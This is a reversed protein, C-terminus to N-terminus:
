MECYTCIVTSPNQLIHERYIFIAYESEIHDIIGTATWIELPYRQNEPLFIKVFNLPLFVTCFLFFYVAECQIRVLNANDVSKLWEAVHSTNKNKETECSKRIKNTLGFESLQYEFVVDDARM